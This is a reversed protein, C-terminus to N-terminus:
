ANREVGEPIRESPWQEGATRRWEWPGSKIENKRNFGIWRGTLTLARPQIHLQFAGHFTRGAHQDYYTGTVITNNDVKGKLIYTRGDFQFSGRVTGMLQSLKITMPDPVPKNDKWWRCEWQGAISEDSRPAKSGLLYVLLRQAPEELFPQVLLTLLLGLGAGVLLLVM